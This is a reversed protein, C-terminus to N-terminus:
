LKQHFKENFQSTEEVWKFNNVLLKQSMAWGHFSNVDLNKLYSSKKNQDYDEVYKNNAQAYWDHFIRGRIGKEVMFLMNVDTVLDLRVKIKRLAARWALGLTSLFHAPGLEYTEICMNQFNKFIAALLLTDSQVYFDHYNKLNEIKLDKCIKKTHAYHSDTVGKM